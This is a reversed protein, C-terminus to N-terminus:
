RRQWKWSDEILHDFFSEIRDKKKMGKSRRKKKITKYPGVKTRKTGPNPSCEM